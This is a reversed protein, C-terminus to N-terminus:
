TGVKQIIKCSCEKNELALVLPSKRRVHKYGLRVDNSLKGERRERAQNVVLHFEQKPDEINYVKQLQKM